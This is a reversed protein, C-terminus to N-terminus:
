LQAERNENSGTYSLKMGTVGQVHPFKVVVIARYKYQDVPCHGNM